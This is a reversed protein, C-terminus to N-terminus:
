EAGAPVRGFDVREGALKVLERHIRPYEKPTSRVLAAHGAREIGRPADLAAADAGAHEADAADPHESLVGIRDINESTGRSIAPPTVWQRARRVIM